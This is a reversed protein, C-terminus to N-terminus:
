HIALSKRVTMRIKGLKLDTLLLLRSKREYAWASHDFQMGSTAASHDDFKVNKKGITEGKLKKSKEERSFSKERRQEEDSCRRSEHTHVEITEHPSM